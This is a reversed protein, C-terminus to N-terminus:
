RVVMMRATARSGGGAINIWYVGPPVLDGNRDRGDWLIPVGDGGAIGSLEWVSRGAVDVIEAQLFVGPSGPEPLEGAAPLRGCLFEHRSAPNASRRQLVLRPVPGPLVQAREQEGIGQMSADMIILGNDIAVPYIQVIDPDWLGWWDYVVETTDFDVLGHFRLKILEGPGNVFTGPGLLSAEVRVLSETEEKVYWWYPIPPDTLFLDGVTASDFDIMTNDYSLHVRFAHLRYVSDVAASIRCPYGAGLVYKPDPDFFLTAKPGIVIAGDHTEDIAIPIGDCDRLQASDIQLVTEGSVDKTAFTLTLLGGPGAVCEDAPIILCEVAVSGPGQEVSWYSGYPPAYSEFLDGRQVGVLEVYTTDFSLTAEYGRLSDPGALELAVTFQGPYDVYTIPPDILLVAAGAPSVWLGASVALGALVVIAWSLKQRTGDRRRVKMGPAKSDWSQQGIWM